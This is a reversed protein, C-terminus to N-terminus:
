FTLKFRATVRQKVDPDDFASSLSYEGNISARDTITWNLGTRASLKGSHGSSPAAVEEAGDVSTMVTGSTRKLSRSVELVAHPALRGIRTRAVTEGRLGATLELSGSTYPEVSYTEEGRMAYGSLRTHRYRAQGYSRLRLRNREFQRSFRALGFAQSASRRGASISAAALEDHFAYRSAGLMVDLYTNRATTLSAYLTDSLSRTELSGSTGIGTRDFAMGVANGVLLRPGFRTDVGFALGNSYVAALRPSEARESDLTVDGGFWVATRRTRRAKEPALLHKTEYAVNKEASGGSFRLALSSANVNRGEVRAGRTSELRGGVLGLQREPTSASKAKQGSLAARGESFAAVVPDDDAAAGPANALAFLLMGAIAAPELIGLKM